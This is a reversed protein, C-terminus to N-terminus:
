FTMKCNTGPCMVAPKISASFLSIKGTRCTSKSRRAEVNLGYTAFTVTYSLIPKAVTKRSATTVAKGCRQKQDRQKDLRDM